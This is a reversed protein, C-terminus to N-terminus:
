NLFVNPQMEGPYVKGKSSQSLIKSIEVGERLRVHKKIPNNKHQQCVQSSGAERM